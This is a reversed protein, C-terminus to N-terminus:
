FESVACFDLISDGIQLRLKIVIPQSIFTKPFQFDLSLLFGLFLLTRLWQPCTGLHLFVAIWTDLQGWNNSHTNTLVPRVQQSVCRLVIAVLEGAACM